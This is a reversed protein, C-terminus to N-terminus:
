VGFQKFHHDLHVYQLRAWENPTMRGFFDHPQRTMGAEGGTYFHELQLLLGEKEQQFQRQNSIILHPSTPINRPVGKTLTRRKAVTGFIRGLFTQSTRRDSMAEELVAAVHAMMQAVNMKGWQAHSSPSLTDLRVLMEGYAKPQLLHPEYMHFQVTWYKVQM